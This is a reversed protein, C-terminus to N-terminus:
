EKISTVSGERGEGGRAGKVRWLIQDSRESPGGNLQFECDNGMQTEGM